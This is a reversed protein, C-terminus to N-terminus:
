FDTTEFNAIFYKGSRGIKLDACKRFVNSDIFVISSQFWFYKLPVLPKLEMPQKLPKALMQQFLLSFDNDLDPLKNKKKTTGSVSRPKAYHRIKLV